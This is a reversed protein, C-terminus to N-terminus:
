NPFTHGNRKNGVKDLSGQRSKEIGDMNSQQVPLSIQATARKPSAAVDGTNLGAADGESRM